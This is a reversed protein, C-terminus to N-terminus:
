KGKKHEAWAREEDIRKKVPALQAFAGKPEHRRLALQSKALRVVEGTNEYGQCLYLRMRAAAYPDSDNAEGYLAAANSVAPWDERRAPVSPFCIPSEDSWCKRSNLLELLISKSKAVTM